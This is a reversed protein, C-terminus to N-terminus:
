PHEIIKILINAVRFFTLLAFCALFAWAVSYWSALAHKDPELLFFGAMSFISFGFCGYLADRLYRVLDSIYGSTRIRNIVSDSPLAALIAKATAVFGTLISGISIAAGLFEKEDLPFKGKCRWWLYAAVASAIYPYSLALLRSM